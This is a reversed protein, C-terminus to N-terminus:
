KHRRDAERREHERRELEGRQVALAAIRDKVSDEDVVWVAGVRVGGIKGAELLQRVRQGSIGLRDAAEQTSIM